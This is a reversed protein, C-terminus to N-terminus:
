SVLLFDAFFLESKQEEGGPAFGAMIAMATVTIAMTM